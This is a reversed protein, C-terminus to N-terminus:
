NKDLVKELAEVIETKGAPKTLSACFGYEKYNSIVSDTSYGSFIIAKVEPDIELLKTITVVGGMGGPITLDLIVADFPNGTDRAQIYKQVTEESNETITCDYGIGELLRKITVRLKEEDDM